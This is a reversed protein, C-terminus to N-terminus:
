KSFCCKLLLGCLSCCVSYLSIFCVLVYSSAKLVTSRVTDSIVGPCESATQLLGPMAALGQWLLKCALPSLPLGRLVPTLETHRSESQKTHCLSQLVHALHSNSFCLLVPSEFGGRRWGLKKALIEESTDQGVTMTSGSYIFPSSSLCSLVSSSHPLVPSM